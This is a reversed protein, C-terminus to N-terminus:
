RRRQQYRRSADELIQREKASLSSEGERSIKELIRDVQSTLNEERSEPEHVRLKPRPRLGRLSLSTPILRGLNLGSFYYLAAFAAGGLHATHAVNDRTQGVGYIDGAVFLTVLLWAPMPLVGMLLLMRRPFHLAFLVSIGVVAGSAGCMVPPRDGAEVPHMANTALVWVLSAFVIMTLYVRLFEKSGYKDEVDAGFLYLGWMNFVIHWVDRPDHVFGATLLQWCNWPKRLLDAKVELFESLSHREFFFFDVLFVVSNIIILNVVMSRAGLRFGPQAEDRIYDRDYLGM